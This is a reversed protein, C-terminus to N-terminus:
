GGFNQTWYHQYKAGPNAFYGVGLYKFDKDMINECHGPSKMWQQVTASATGNGAAINEGSYGIGLWGAAMIREKPGKGEPNTHDFYNRTAMDKSHGRAATRLAAHNGLPPAPGFTKDGCVAGVARRANVEVLVQDELSGNAAPWADSATPPPPPPVTSAPPPPTATATPPPFGPIPFPLGSPMPPMAWGPPLVLGHPTFAPGLVGGPDIAPPAATAVPTPAPSPAPAPTAPPPNYVEMQKRPQCAASLLLLAACSRVTMQM